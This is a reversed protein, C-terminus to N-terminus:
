CSARRMTGGVKQRGESLVFYLLRTHYGVQVTLLITGTKPSSCVGTTSPKGHRLELLVGDGARASFRGFM